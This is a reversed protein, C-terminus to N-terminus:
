RLCATLLLQAQRNRNIDGPSSPVLWLQEALYKKVAILAVKLIANM